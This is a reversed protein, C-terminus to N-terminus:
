RGSLLSKSPQRKLSFLTDIFSILYVKAHPQNDNRSRVGIFHPVIHHHCRLLSEENWKTENPIVPEHFPFPNPSPPKAAWGWGLFVPLQWGSRLSPDRSFDTMPLLSLVRLKVNM